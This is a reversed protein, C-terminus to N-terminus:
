RGLSDPCWMQNGDDEDCKTMELRRKKKLEGEIGICHNYGEVQLHRCKGIQVEDENEDEGADDDVSEIIWDPDSEDSIIINQGANAALGDNEDSYIGDYVVFLEDDRKPMIRGDSDIIWKQKSSGTCRKLRLMTGEEVSGADVCLSPDRFSKWYKGAITWLKTDDQYPDDCRKLKIKSNHEVDECVICYDADPRDNPNSWQKRDLRVIQPSGATAHTILTALLAIYSTRTIAVM